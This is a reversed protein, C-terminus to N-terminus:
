RAASRTTIGRNLRSGNSPFSSNMLTVDQRARRWRVAKPHMDSGSCMRRNQRRIRTSMITIISLWFWGVASKSIINFIRLVDTRRSLKPM